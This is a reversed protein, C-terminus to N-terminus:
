VDSGGKQPNLHTWNRRRAIMNITSKTVGYQRALGVQQGLYRNFTVENLIVQAEAETLVNSPHKEGSTNILGISYAHRAEFKEQQDKLKQYADEAADLVSQFAKVKAKTDRVSWKRKVAEKCLEFQAQETALWESFYLGPSLQIIERLHRETLKRQTIFKKISDPLKYLGLRYSVMAQKIGHAEAIKEQTWGLGSLRAYSAWVDIPNVPQHYEDNENDETALRVIDYESLDKYLVVPIKSLGAKKAAHFRTGGAFIEYKNQSIESVWLARTVEFGNRIMRDALRDIYEPERIQRPNCSSIVLDSIPVEIIKVTM